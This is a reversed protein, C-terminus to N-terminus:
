AAAREPAAGALARLRGAAIEATHAWTHGSRIRKSAAAGLAAAREPARVVSRMAEVLDPVDVEVVRPRGAILMGGVMGSEMGVERAPVLLATGEDCFDRAAGRDPVIAPLGCAMAEAIPLGYGEGRYPQVLADCAAYLRPMDGDDLSDTLHLIRPARPDAQIERVRAAAEQPVYPGRGGFDKLVLTVDDRAGFARLYAALLLDIGKRWILGGVFLLRVGPARDGLDLPDAGPRFRVPDVGLPVLALRDPDMGGELMGDRVHTSAVWVEDIWREQALVWERPPPGYEWHLFQAVRGGHAPGLSPPYAHRLTVDVEGLLRSVHPGLEAYAPDSRGLRAEGTDVIGLDVGGHVILARALDRNVGALSHVGFVSGRLLVRPVGPIAPAAARPRPRLAAIRALAARAVARHDHAAAAARARAGAAIREGPNEVADRLDAARPALAPRGMAAAELAVRSRPGAPTAAVVADCAAYLAPMRAAPLLDDLIVVDAMADPDFGAAAVAALAAQQIAGLDLGEDSWTKLVLTVDDAATFAECWEALLAGAHAQEGVALLVTGHAGPIALPGTAPDFRDLEIAEPVVAILEQAVGAAALADAEEPTPVWIEDLQNARVVGDPPVALAGVSTRGIRLAGHAYPDLLRAPGHEISAVVSAPELTMLDALAEREAPTVAERYHWVRHDARLDAGEELLGRVMARGEAAWGSPDTLPGRWVLTM